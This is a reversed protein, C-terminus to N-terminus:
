CICGAPQSETYRYQVTHCEPYRCDICHCKFPIVFVGLLIVRLTVASLM